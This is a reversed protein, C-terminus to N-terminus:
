KDKLDFLFNKGYKDICYKLYPKIEKVSIVILNKKHDKILSQIKFYDISRFYGKIEVYTGDELIFDPYYKHIKKDEPFYFDFSQTNRQFKINHEINYIIFALEYSFDFHIGKYSGRRKSNSSNWSNMRKDITEKSPRKIRPDTLYSNGKNWSMKNKIEIPLNDYIYNKTTINHSRRYNYNNNVGDSNRKRIVPCKTYHPSCCKLGNKLTYKAKQGCGYACMENSSTLVNYKRELEHTTKLGCENLTCLSNNKNHQKRINWLKKCYESLKKKIAPCSSRFKQCCWKKNKLQYPANEKGCYFCNM